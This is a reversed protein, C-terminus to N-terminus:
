TPPSIKDLGSPLCRVQIQPKKRLCRRQRHVARLGQRLQMPNRHWLTQLHPLRCQMALQRLAL